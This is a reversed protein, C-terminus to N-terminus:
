TSSSQHIWRLLLNAGRLRKPPPETPAESASPRDGTPVDLSAPTAPGVERAPGGTCDEEPMEDILAELEAEITFGLPPRAM